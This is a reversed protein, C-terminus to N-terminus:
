DGRTGMASSLFVFGCQFTFWVSSVVCIFLVM